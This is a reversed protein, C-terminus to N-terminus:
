RAARDRGKYTQNAPQRDESCRPVMYPFPESGASLFLVPIFTVRQLYNM